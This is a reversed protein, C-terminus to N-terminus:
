PIRRRNSPRDFSNSHEAVQSRSSSRWGTPMCVFSRAIREPTRWLCILRDFGGDRLKLGLRRGLAQLDHLRSEAEVAIRLAPAQGTADWARLDGPDPFPVETRWRISPHSAARLREILASQAADRIPDGVPYARVALELGLLAFLRAAVELDLPSRGREIRSLQSRSLGLPRAVDAQSIGAALRATRAEASLRLRLERGRAAGVDISRERSSM